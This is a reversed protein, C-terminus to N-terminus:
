RTILKLKVLSYNNYRQIVKYTTIATDGDPSICREIISDKKRAIPANIIGEDNKMYGELLAIYEKHILHNSMQKIFLEQIYENKAFIVLGSTNRDLRNVPRIKKDIKNENFYYKLGNSLTDEYHLISPHIPINSPKDLVIFYEDEYIINLNMKVPKINPSNEKFDILVEIKDNYNLIYDLYLNNGNLFIKNEKKLKILLRNSINFEKKLVQRITKYKNDKKIYTLKLFIM